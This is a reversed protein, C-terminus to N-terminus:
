EPFANTTDSMGPNPDTDQAAPSTTEVFLPLLALYFHAKM